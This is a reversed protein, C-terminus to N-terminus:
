PRGRYRDPDIGHRNLKDYLTKRPLRLQAMTARIDGGTDRLTDRLVSAEFREVRAALGERAAAVSGQADGLNLVAAFAYNRLERVNGPWDHEILRRRIDDTMAFASQGVQALADHVFHAFLRPVDERRERLPPVRLRIVNLRFFLDARFRGAEVEVSLDRKSAAVVRLDVSKPAAAGHPRVEREELVRLMTAQVAPAMSDVEDLFLTGGSSAEIRGPAGLDRGFLEAEAISEPLAGCNVAVFPRGRRRGQLHLLRAVLEKGSGTEGEVLVDIDAKALQGIIERLRVMVHSDGILPGGDDEEVSARLRRNEVVLRRTQLAKLASGILHDAAYPKPIFDFAGDRLAKVAVDVDAHGTILILPIEPDIAKVREFLQLGDMRPMRIDSVIIGTFERDIEGLATEADAFERVEIGALALSQCNAQRLAADDDVFFVRQETVLMTM